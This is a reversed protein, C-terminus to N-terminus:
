YEQNTALKVPGSDAAAVITHNGRSSNTKVRQRYKRLRGAIRFIQIRPVTLFTERPAKKGEKPGTDAPDVVPLFFSIDM